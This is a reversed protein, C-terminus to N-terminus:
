TQCPMMVFYIYLLCSLLSLCIAVVYCFLWHGKDGKGRLLHYIEAGILLFATILFPIYKYTLDITM